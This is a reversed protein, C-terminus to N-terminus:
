STYTTHVSLHQIISPQNINGFLHQYFGRQFCLTPPLQHALRWPPEFRTNGNTLLGYLQQHLKLQYIYTSQLHIAKIQYVFTSLLEHKDKETKEQNIVIM